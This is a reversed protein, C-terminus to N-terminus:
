WCASRDRGPDAHGGGGRVQGPDPECPPGAIFGVAHGSTLGVATAQPGHLRDGGPRYGFGEARGTGRGESREQVRAELRERACHGTFMALSGAMAMLYLWVGWSPVKNLDEM